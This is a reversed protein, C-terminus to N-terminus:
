WFSHVYLYQQGSLWIGELRSRSFVTHSLGNPYFHTYFQSRHRGVNRRNISDGCGTNLSIDSAELQLIRPCDPTTCVVAIIWCIWTWSSRRNLAWIRYCFYGQVILSIVTYMWVHSLPILQAKSPCTECLDPRLPRRLAGLQISSRLAVYITSSILQTSLLILGACM